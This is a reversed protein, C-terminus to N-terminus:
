DGRTRRTYQYIAAGSQLPLGYIIRARRKRLQGVAILHELCADVLRLRNGFYDFRKSLLVSTTFSLPECPQELLELLM